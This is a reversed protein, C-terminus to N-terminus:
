LRRPSRLLLSLFSSKALFQRLCSPDYECYMQLQMEHYMTYKELNYDKWRQTSLGHLYQHLLNRKAKPIASSPAPAKQLPSASLKSVVHEVPFHDMHRIFM